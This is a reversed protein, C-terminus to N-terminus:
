LKSSFNSRIQYYISITCHLCLDKFTKEVVASNQFLQVKTILEVV